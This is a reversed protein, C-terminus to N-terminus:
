FGRMRRYIEAHEPDLEMLKEIVKNDDKFLQLYQDRHASLFFVAQKNGPDNKLIDDLISLAQSCYKKATSDEEEIYSLGLFFMDKMIRFPQNKESLVFDVLDSREDWGLAFRTNFKAEESIQKAKEFFPTGFFRGYKDYEEGIILNIYFDIFGKLPQYENENHDLQEGAEYPFRWYKDYYQNDLNNTIFFTGSYRAEYSVSNDTLFIQIDIPIEENSSEETWDYGNIYTEVDDSFNKLKEQKELPLKELMMRVQSLIKQAFVESLNSNVLIFFLASVFITKRRQTYSLYKM